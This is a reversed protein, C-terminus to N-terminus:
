GMMEWFSEVSEEVEPSIRSRGYGSMLVGLVVVAIVGSVQLTAEAFIFTAYCGVITLTVESM